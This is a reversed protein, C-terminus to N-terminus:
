YLESPLNSCIEKVIEAGMLSDYAKQSIIGKSENEIIINCKYYMEGNKVEAPFNDDTWKKLYQASGNTSVKIIIDLTSKCFVPTYTYEDRDIYIGLVPGHSDELRNIPTIKLGKEELREKIAMRISEDINISGDIYLDINGIDKEIDGATVKDSKFSSTTMEKSLSFDAFAFLLTILVLSIILISMNRNKM